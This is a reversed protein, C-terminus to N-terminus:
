KKSLRPLDLYNAGDYSLGQLSALHAVLQEPQYIIATAGSEDIQNLQQYLSARQPGNALAAAQASLSVLQPNDYSERWAVYHATYDAFADAFDSPDPYDMAWGLLIAPAKQARFESLAESAALQRLNVKIGVQGLTGAIAQGLDSSNVGGPESSSPIILDFSFGNPYGGQALLQKAKAPDYTFPLASTAGFIGNPIIGQWVTGDGQLLNKVISNYDIAYKIAQRVDPSAFAPVNHVNMALYMLTIEPGKFIGYKPNGQLSALQEPSLDMAVDANGKQLMDLEGTNDSVNTFVIRKLAPAPGETYHPNPTLEIQVNRTWNALQYPGSGASHSDLWAHGWDGNVAHAQVTKADVISLTTNTLVALFAGPSFPKPLTIRVTSPDVAVVDQDVNDKSLGTQTLLSLAPEIKLNLFRKFSYVVDASTVRNGSAFTADTRLHFTWTRGDPSVTWSQALGPQVNTLDGYPFTVLQDYIYRTASQDPVEFASNGDMTEVGGLSTAVILTQQPTYQTVASGTSASGSAAPAASGGCATAGIMAALILPLVRSRAMM